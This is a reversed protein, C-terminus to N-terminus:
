VGIFCCAQDSDDGGRGTWGNLRRMAALSLLLVVLLVPTALIAARQGFPWLRERM